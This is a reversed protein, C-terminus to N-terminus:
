LGPLGPTSRGGGPRHGGFGDRRFPVTEKGKAAGAHQEMQGDSGSDPVPKIQQGHGPASERIQDKLEKRQQVDAQIIPSVQQVQEDSLNLEKKMRGVIDEAVPTPGECACRSVLVHAHRSSFVARDSEERGDDCEGGRKLFFSPNRM